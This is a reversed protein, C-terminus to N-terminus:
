SGGGRGTSTVTTFLRPKPAKVCPAAPPVIVTLAVPDRDAVPVTIGRLRPNEKEAATKRSTALGPVKIVISLPGGTDSGPLLPPDMVRVVPAVSGTDGNTIAVVGGAKVVIVIPPVSVTPLM